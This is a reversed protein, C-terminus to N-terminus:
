CGSANPRITPSPPRRSRISWIIECDCPTAWISSRFRTSRCARSGHRPGAAHRPRHGSSRVAARDTAAFLRLGPPRLQQELDINEVARVHLAAHPAIRRIPSIIHLTQAHRFHSAASATSLRSLKRPEGALHQGPRTRRGLAIRWLYKATYVGGFGGGLIVIRLPTPM